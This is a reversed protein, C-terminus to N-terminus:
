IFRVPTLTSDKINHVYKSLGAKSFSPVLKTELHVGYIFTRHSWKGKKNQRLIRMSLFSVEFHGMITTLGKYARTKFHFVNNLLFIFQTQDHLM